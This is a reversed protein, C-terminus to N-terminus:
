LELPPSDGLQGPFVGALHAGLVVEPSEGRMWGKSGRPWM